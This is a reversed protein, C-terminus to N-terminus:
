FIILEDNIRWQNARASNPPDLRGHGSGSSGGNPTRWLIVTAIQGKRKNLIKFKKSAWKTSNGFIRDTKDVSFNFYKGTVGSKHNVSLVPLLGKALLGISDGVRWQGSAARGNDWRGHASHSGGNRSRWLIAQSVMGTGHNKIKLKVGNWKNSGLLGDVHSADFNFYKGGVGSKHNVSKVPLTGLYYDAYLNSSFITLLSALILKWKLNRM